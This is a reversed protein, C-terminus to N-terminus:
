HNTLAWWVQSTTLYMLVLYAGATWNLSVWTEPFVYSFHLLFEGVTADPDPNDTLMLTFKPSCVSFQTHLCTFTLSAWIIWCPSRQSLKKALTTWAASGSVLLTGLEEGWRKGTRELRCVRGQLCGALSLWRSLSGVDGPSRLARGAHYRAAASSM